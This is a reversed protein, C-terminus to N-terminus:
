LTEFEDYRWTVELAELVAGAGLVFDVGGDVFVHPHAQAPLAPALAVAACLARRSLLCWPPLSLVHYLMITPCHRGCM